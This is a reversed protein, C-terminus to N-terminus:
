NPLRSLRIQALLLRSVNEHFFIDMQIWKIIALLIRMLLINKKNLSHEKKTEDSV